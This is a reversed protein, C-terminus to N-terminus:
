FHHVMFGDNLRRKTEFRYVVLHMTRLTTAPYTFYRLSDKGALKRFRRTRNAVYTRYRKQDNQIYGLVVMSDTWYADVALGDMDLEELLMASVKASLCLATLEMRVITPADSPVVRSKGMVLSVCVNGAIDVQRLYTASGYGYDSADSFSHLSYSVAKFDPSKYCRQIELNQLELVEDRWQLWDSRMKPTLDDDWNNNETTIQQLIKRGKLLFPSALGLPDFISSITSLIGRRTLPNENLTIRFSLIDNEVCWQVGLPREIPLSSSLDLDVISPARKESPIADLVERDNSIFKTLNFGGATCMGQVNKILNLAKVTSEFSKLWDDVYFDKRVTNAAEPGYEAEFDDATKKLAFNACGGSSVGGFLHVCMEFEVPDQDFDENEWWFFRLFSRQEKPVRVQHFMAEIDAMVAVNEKRFRVLVGVLLNTLDPGQILEENLSRGKCRASLNFVVRWKNKAKNRVAHHMAHWVKGPKDNSKDARQAYKQVLESMIGCYAICLEENKMLRRKLSMARNFAQLRNDPLIINNARFPLPLELKGDPGRAGQKMIELFQEDEHSLARKEGATESFENAYMEKLMSTISTDSIEEQVIFHHNGVMGTSIDTAPVIRTHFCNIASTTTCNSTPGVICWGLRSRKAFPGESGEIAQLPFCAKACNGGIMLGFPISPDYDPIENMLVRLHEWQAIKDPTPIEEKEISLSPRSFTVPLEIPSAPYSKMHNPVSQVFLNSVSSSPEVTKGNLTTVQVATETVPTPLNELVEDSIFTGTCCDDILAYVTQKQNPSSSHWLEVQVVCMSIASQNPVNTHFSSAGNGGHLTTPHSKTCVGCTRKNTCSKAVHDDGIVRLCSFCLNKRFVVKHRQDIDLQLFENCLEIDHADGCMPCERNEDDWFQVRTAKSTIENIKSLAAKSYAPDNLVEVEKEFFLVLDDFKAETGTQRMDVAKRNWRGQHRPHTKAIVTAIMDTSDLEQLIGDRKYSKCKLLFRYLKKFGDVDDESVKKWKRLEKIYSCSLLHDNGYEKDLLTIAEDYCNPTQAQVLHKILEQADGSTYKILRTLRGRQDSVATEVVEKFNAKFYLYELPDGTFTDLDPKPASQLKIMQIMADHLQDSATSSTQTITAQANTQPETSKASWSSRLQPPLSKNVVKIDAPQVSVKEAVIVEATDNEGKIDQEHISYVKKIAEAKKLKTELKWLEANLEAEKKRKLSEMEAKLGAIKAEERVSRAASRVSTKSKASKQSGWSIESSAKSRKSSVSSRDDNANKEQLLFWKCVSDKCDLYIDDIEEMLTAVETHQNEDDSEVENDINLSCLRSYAESADTYSKELATTENNVLEANSGDLLDCIIKKQKVLRKKATKMCSLLNQILLKRGKDTLSTERKSRRIDLPEEEGAPPPLPPPDDKSTM